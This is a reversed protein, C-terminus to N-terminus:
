VSLEPIELSIEIGNSSVFESSAILARLRNYYGILLDLEAEGQTRNSAHAAPNRVRTILEGMWALNDGSEIDLHAKVEGGLTNASTRFDELDMFNILAASPDMQGQRQSIEGRRRPSLLMFWAMFEGHEANAVGIFIDQIMRVFAHQGSNIRQQIRELMREQHVVLGPPNFDEFQNNIVLELERGGDRGATSGRFNVLKRISEYSPTRFYSLVPEMYESVASVLHEPQATQVDLHANDQRWRLLDSFVLFLASLGRNTCLYGGPQGPQNSTGRLLWHEELHEAVWTLFAGLVETARTATARDSDRTFLGPLMGVRRDAAGLMGTLQIADILGLFTISAKIEPRSEMSVLNRLPSGTRTSLNFAAQSRIVRLRVYPSESGAFLEPYLEEILGRPVSTQNNNIDIFRRAEEEGSLNEYATVFLSGDELVDEEVTDHFYGFLRHQGDVIWASSYRHPLTLTGFRVQGDPQLSSEAPDFRFGSGRRRQINLLLPSPFRNGDNLYKAIQSLKTRKLLRQYTPSDSEFGARHQVMVIPVLDKPSIAFQYYRLRGERGELAPVAVHYGPIRTPGVVHALFQTMGLRQSDKAVSELYAIHEDQIVVIGNEKAYDLHTSSWTINQTVFLFSTLGSDEDRYRSAIARRVAPIIGVYARLDQLLSASTARTEPDSFKCEIVSVHDRSAGLVDIQKTHTESTSIKFDYSENMEKYGLSHALLWIRDEFQEDPSKPRSVKTARIGSQTVNWGRQLYDDIDRTRV